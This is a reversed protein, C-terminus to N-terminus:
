RYIVWFPLERSHRMKCYKFIKVAKSKYCENFALYLKNTKINYKDEKGRRKPCSASRLRSLPVKEM